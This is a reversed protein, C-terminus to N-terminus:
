QGRAVSTFLVQQQWTKSGGGHTHPGALLNPWRGRGGVCGGLEGLNGDRTSRLGALCKQRRLSHGPPPPSTVQVAALKQALLM